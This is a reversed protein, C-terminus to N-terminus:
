RTGCAQIYRIGCYNTPADGQAYGYCPSAKLFSVGSDWIDNSATHNCGISQATAGVYKNPYSYEGITVNALWPFAYASMACFGGVFCDYTSPCSSATTTTDDIFLHADADCTIGAFSDDDGATPVLAATYILTDAAEDLVPDTLTVVQNVM